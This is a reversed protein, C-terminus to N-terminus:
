FNNWYNYIAWIWLKTVCNYIGIHIYLEAVSCHYQAIDTQPIVFCSINLESAETPVYNSWLVMAIRIYTYGMFCFPLAYLAVMQFLQYAMQNEDAWNPKCSTLLITFHKPLNHQPKHTDMAYLEPSIIVTSVLWILCIIVRARTTTSRFKLPNCIAFYREVSIATLTLVSVSVSM